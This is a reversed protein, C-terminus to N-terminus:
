EYSAEQVEEKLVDVGGQVVEEFLGNQLDKSEGEPSIKKNNLNEEETIEPKAM